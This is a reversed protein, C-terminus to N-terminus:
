LSYQVLHQILVTQGGSSSCLTAWFMYLIVTIFTKYLTITCGTPWKGLTTGPRVTLLVYFESHVYKWTAVGFWMTVNVSREYTLDTVTMHLVFNCILETESWAEFVARMVFCDDELPCSLVTYLCGNSLASCISFKLICYLLFFSLFLLCVIIQTAVNYGM